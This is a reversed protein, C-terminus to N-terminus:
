PLARLKGGVLPRTKVVVEMESTASGIFVGRTPAADRYDRGVALRVYREAALDPHTADYARWGRGPILAEAWAHSAGVSPGGDASYVYGSVYRAPVGLTRAVAIFLHAFDQCVGRGLRVVDDTATTVTTSAPSYTFERAIRQRLRAMGGEVEATSAPDSLKVRTAIRRIGRGEVVPPRFMMLDSPYVEVVDPEAPGGTEVLARSVIELRTHPPLLDFYHVRNGFGDVYSRLHVEPRVEVRHQLVRQGMEGSPSLRLEMYSQRVEASYHYSTTHVVELRM